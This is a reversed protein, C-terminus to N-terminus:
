FYVKYTTRRGIFPTLTRKRKRRDGRKKELKRSKPNAKGAEKKKSSKDPIEERYYTLKYVVGKGIKSKNVILRKAKNYLINAAVQYFVVRNRIADKYLIIYIDM